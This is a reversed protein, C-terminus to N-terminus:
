GKASIQCGVNAISSEQGHVTLHGQGGHGGAGVVYKPTKLSSLKLLQLNVKKTLKRSFVGSGRIFITM